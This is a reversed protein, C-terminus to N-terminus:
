LKKIFHILEEFAAKTCSFEALGTDLFLAFGHFGDQLHNWTVPINNDELRKKYLLGDDRFIDYECTLIYTEPLQKVIADDDQIPSSMTEDYLRVKQYLEKSFPVPSPPKYGRAKFKEPILDASIWKKFQMKMNEPVHANNLLDELSSFDENLYTFALKAARKITLGPGFRNQQHAPLSLNLIQLFPYLLIQARIKPVYMKKVLERCVFASLTGGSSEGMLIIRTPDVGYDKANKMFYITGALCDSLQAPHQHEPGLRFELFVVVSDSERALYRCVREYTRKTGIVACGGHLYLIGRRLETAPAKPQYIRVPVHEFKSDKIFLKSEKGAPVSNLLFRIFQLQTCVGLKEFIRGKPKEVEGADDSM